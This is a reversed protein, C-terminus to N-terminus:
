STGDKDDKTYGTLRAQMEIRKRREKDAEKDRQLSIFKGAEKRWEEFRYTVRKVNRIRRIESDITEMLAENIEIDSAVGPLKHISGGLFVSGKVTVVSVKATDIWHRAFVSRVLSNIRFDSVALAKEGPIIPSNCRM